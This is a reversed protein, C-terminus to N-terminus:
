INSFIDWNNYYGSMDKEIERSEVPRGDEKIQFYYHFKNKSDCNKYSFEKIIDERRFMFYYFENEAGAVVFVFFPFNSNNIEKEFLTHWGSCVVKEDIYEFYSRSYCIKVNYDKNDKSIVIGGGESRNGKRVNFNYKESLIRAVEQRALTKGSKKLETAVSDINDENEITNDYEELISVKEELTKIRELMELIIKEYNM